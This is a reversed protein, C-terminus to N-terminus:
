SYWCVLARATLQGIQEASAITFSYVRDYRTALVTHEFVISELRCLEFHSAFSVM